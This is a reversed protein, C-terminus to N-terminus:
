LSEILERKQTQVSKLEREKEEKQDKLRDTIELVSDLQSRAQDLSDQIKGQVMFDAIFGDFFFDAFKLMGSIGVELQATEEVDLLEKQFTRMSRQAQHLHDEAKDINDHKAMSSIMGGGFMDWTGWNEAKELSRIAQELRNEVHWGATIAEDLETITAKLNGEQESINLVKEASPSFSSTVMQEKEFLLQRYEDEVNELSTLKFNLEQMAAQIDKKTKEAEELKHQAVIMEQQETSLKEDKKGSLTAFLNTLSVRELKEVDKKESEFQKRLRSITQEMTKLEKQYDKLQVEAKEKKRLDQKVDVLRENIQEFM